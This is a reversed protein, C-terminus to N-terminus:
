FSRLSCQKLINDIRQTAKRGFLIRRARSAPSSFSCGFRSCPWRRQSPGTLSSGSKPKAATTMAGKPMGSDACSGNGSGIRFTPISRTSDGASLSIAAFDRQDPKMDWISEDDRRLGVTVDSSFFSDTIYDGNPFFYGGQIRDSCLWDSAGVQCCGRQRQGEM